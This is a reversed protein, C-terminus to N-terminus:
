YGKEKFYEAAGPHFRIPCYTPSMSETVPYPPTSLLVRNEDAFLRDLLERVTKVGLTKAAVLLIPQAVTKYPRAMGAYTGEPMVFPFWVPWSKRIQALMDDPVELFSVHDGMVSTIYSVVDLPVGGQYIAGDITGDIMLEGATSFDWDYGVESFSGIGTSALITRATYGASGGDPGVYIIKDQLDTLDGGAALDTLIMFHEVSLGVVAVATLGKVKTSSFRGVGLSAEYACLSDVVALDASGDRLAEISKQDDESPATRIVLKDNTIMGAIREGIRALDGERPGAVLVLEEACASGIALSFLIIIGITWTRM